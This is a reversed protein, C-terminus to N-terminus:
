EFTLESRALDAGVTQRRLSCSKESPSRPDQGFAAFSGLAVTLGVMLSMLKKMARYRRLRGESASKPGHASHQTFVHASAGFQEFMFAIGAMLLALTAVNSPRGPTMARQIARRL